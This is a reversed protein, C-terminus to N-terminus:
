ASGAACATTRGIVVTRWGNSTSVCTRRAGPRIARSIRSRIWDQNSPYVFIMANHSTCGGLTGARPYWVGGKDAVYKPDSQEKAPDSYHHVFFDWRMAEHETAFPHFAPVDYESGRPDGGAELV